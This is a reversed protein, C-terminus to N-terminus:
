GFIYQGHEITRRCDTGSASPCPNYQNFTPMLPSEGTIHHINEWLQHFNDHNILYHILLSNFAMQRLALNNSNFWQGQFMVCPPYSWYSRGVFIIMLLRIASSGSGPVATVASFLLSCPPGWEVYTFLRLFLRRIPCEAYCRKIVINVLSTLYRVISSFQIGHLLMSSVQCQFDSSDIVGSGAAHQVTTM